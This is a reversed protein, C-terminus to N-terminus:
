RAADVERKGREEREKMAKVLLRKDQAGLTETLEEVHALHFRFKPNTYEGTAENKTLVFNPDKAAFQAEKAKLTAEFTETFMQRLTHIDTVCKAYRNTAMM